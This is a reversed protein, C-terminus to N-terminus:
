LTPRLFRERISRRRRSLCVLPALLVVWAAPSRHARGLECSCGSNESALPAGNVGAGGAGASAGGAGSTTVMESKGGTGSQGGSALM